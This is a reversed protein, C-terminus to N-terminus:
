FFFILLPLFIFIFTLSNFQMILKKKSLWKGIREAPPHTSDTWFPENKNSLFINDFCLINFKKCLKYFEDKVFIANESLKFNKRSLISPEIPSVYIILDNKKKVLDIM